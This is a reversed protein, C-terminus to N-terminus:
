AVVDGLNTIQRLSDTTSDWAWLDGTAKNAEFLSLVFYGVNGGADVAVSKMTLGSLQPWSGAVGHTKDKPNAFFLAPAGYRLNGLHAPRSATCVWGSQLPLWAGEVNYDITGAHEALHWLPKLDKGLFRVGKTGGSGGSDHAVAIRGDRAVALGGTMYTLEKALE